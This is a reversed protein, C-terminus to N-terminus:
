GDRRVVEVLRAVNEPPTTQLIGHGLNFIYKRGKMADLIEVVREDMQQGGAVLLLPDLNGQVVRDTKEALEVMGMVPMATNCSVGDVGTEEVFAASLQDAGRPFGLIPIEPYRKRLREVM